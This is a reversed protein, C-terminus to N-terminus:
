PSRWSSKKVCESTESPVLPPRFFPAYQWALVEQASTLASVNGTHWLCLEEGPQLAQSGCCRGERLREAQLQEPMRGPRLASGCVPHQSGHCVVRLGEKLQTAM